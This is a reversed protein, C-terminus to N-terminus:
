SFASRHSIIWVFSNRVGTFVYIITFIKGADTKPTFDGYGVTTMTYASFYIADLYRWNEVIHYFTAGGFLSIIIIIVVYWIRRHYRKHEEEDM